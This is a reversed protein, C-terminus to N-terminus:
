AHAAKRAQAAAEQEAAWEEPTLKPEARGSPIPHMRNRAGFVFQAADDQPCLGEFTSRVTPWGHKDVLQVLATEVRSGEQVGCGHLALWQKAAFLDDGDDQFVISAGISTEDRRTEDRRPMTQANSRANSPSQEPVARSWRSSAAHKAHASRREREADLGHFRFRSGPRLEVVGATIFPRLKRGTMGMPLVPSAPYAQDATMLLLLWVGRLQHDAWIEALRDDDAADWYVRSYPRSDDSM